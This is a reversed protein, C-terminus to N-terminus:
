QIVVRHSQNGIRVIYVGQPLTLVLDSTATQTRVTHGSIDFITIDCPQTIGSFFLRNGQTYLAVATNPTLPSTTVDKVILVSLDKDVLQGNSNFRVTVSASKSENALATLFLTDRRVVASLASPDSVSLVRKTISAPINDKDTAMDGLPIRLSQGGNLTVPAFDEVEPAFMDPFIFMAPYWYHVIPTFVRVFDGQTTLQLFIWNPNSIATRFCGVYLTGNHPSVRLVGSNYIYYNQLDKNASLDYIESIFNDDIDYRYIHTRGNYWNYINDTFSFFLANEKTSACLSGATWAYWTQEVILNPVGSMQALNFSTQELTVPNICLLENGQWQEGSTGYPYGQAYENTNRAAWIRGDKSQTMTSFSGPITTIIEDTEPNIIHIGKDEQIAFVYDYTRIMIGIQNYYIMSASTNDEGGKILPNETGAIRKGIQGTVLDLAFIGNSTGIYGKTEDVGVFARGDAASKGDIEFITPHSYIVKMTKADTVVVRGGKWKGNNGPDNDQKCMFYFRDGYIAGYQSTCGLSLKTDQNEAQIIRYSFEGPFSLHNITSNEHGYWDENLIFIGQTYPAEAHAMTICCLAALFFSKKM